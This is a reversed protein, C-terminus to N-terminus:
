VMKPLRAIHANHSHWSCCGENNLWVYLVQWHFNVEAAGPNYTLWSHQNMASVLRHNTNFNLTTSTEILEGFLWRAPRCVLQSDEFYITGIRCIGVMCTPVCIHGGGWFFIYIYNSNELPRWGTYIFLVSYSQSEIEAHIPAVGLLSHSGVLGVRTYYPTRDTGFTITDINYPHTAVGLVNSLILCVSAWM